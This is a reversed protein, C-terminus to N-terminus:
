WRDWSRREEDESWDRHEPDPTRDSEKILERLVLEDELATKIGLWEEYRDEGVGMWNWGLMVRLANALHQDGMQCVWPGHVDDNPSWQSCTGTRCRCSASTDTFSQRRPNPERPTLSVRREENSM